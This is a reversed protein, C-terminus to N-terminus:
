LHGSSHRPRRFTNRTTVTQTLTGHRFGYADTAAAAAAAAERRNNIADVSPAKARAMM